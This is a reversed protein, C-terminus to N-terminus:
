SFFLFFFVIRNFFLDWMYLIYLSWAIGTWRAATSWVQTATAICGSAPLALLVGGRLSGRQTAVLCEPLDSCLWLWWGADVREVVDTARSYRVVCNASSLDLPCHWLTSMGGQGPWIAWLPRQLITQWTGELSGIPQLVSSFLWLLTIM